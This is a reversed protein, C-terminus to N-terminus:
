LGEPLGGDGWRPFTNGREDPSVGHGKLFGMRARLAGADLVLFFSGPDAKVLPNAIVKGERGFYQGLQIGIGVHLTGVQGQVQTALFGQARVLGSLCAVFLNSLKDAPEAAPQERLQEDL